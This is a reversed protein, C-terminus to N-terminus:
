RSSAEPARQLVDERGDAVALGAGFISRGDRAGVLLASRVVAFATCGRAQSVPLASRVVAFATCGRAQSATHTHGPSSDSGRTLTAAARLILLLLSGSSRVLVAAARLLM